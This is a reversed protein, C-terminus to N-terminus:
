KTQHVIENQDGRRFYHILHTVSFPVLEVATGIVAFALYKDVYLFAEHGM